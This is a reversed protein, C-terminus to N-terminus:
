ERGPALVLLDKYLKLYEKASAVWSFDQNMAEEVMREWKTLERLNSPFNSNILFKDRSDFYVKLAREITLVLDDSAYKEFVFGTKGDIVTDALGGTKRVIPLTGYRMGIMQPLGCPEFRSPMLIVDAGAYIQHALKEDFRNIFVMNVSQEM